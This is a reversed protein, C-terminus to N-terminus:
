RINKTSIAVMKLTELEEIVRGAGIVVCDLPNDAISVPMGTEEKILEDVANFDFNHIYVIPRLAELYSSLREAPNM